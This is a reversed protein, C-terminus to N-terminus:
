AFLDVENGEEDYVLIAGSPCNRAIRLLREDSLEAVGRGPEAVGDENFGFAEPADAVCTGSSICVEPDIKVTYGMAVGRHTKGM